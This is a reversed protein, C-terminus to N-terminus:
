TCKQDQSHATLLRLQLFLAMENEHGLARILSALGRNVGDASGGVLQHIDLIPEQAQPAPVYGCQGCDIDEAENEKLKSCNECNIEPFDAKFRLHELLQALDESERPGLLPRCAHDVIRRAVDVPLDPWDWIDNGPRGDPYCIDRWQLCSEALVMEAFDGNDVARAKHASWVLPGLPKLRLRSGDVVLFKHKTITQSM